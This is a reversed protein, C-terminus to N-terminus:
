GGARAYSTEGNAKNQPELAGKDPDGSSAMKPTQMRKRERYRRQREANTNYIPSDHRVPQTVNREPTVANRGLHKNVDGVLLVTDRVLVAVFPFLTEKKKPILGDGIELMSEIMVRMTEIRRLLWDPIEPDPWVGCQQSIARLQEAHLDVIHSEGSTGKQELRVIGNDMQCFSIDFIEEM